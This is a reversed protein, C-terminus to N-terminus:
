SILRRRARSATGQVVSCNNARAIVIRSAAAEQWASHHSVILLQSEALRSSLFEVVTKRNAEDLAADVEDLMFTAQHAGGVQKQAVALAVCLCLGLVSRQGGSLSSLPISTTDSHASLVVKPRSASSDCITLSASFPMKFVQLGEQLAADAIELAKNFFLEFKSTQEAIGARLKAISTLLDAQRQKLADVNNDTASKIDPHAAAALQYAAVAAKRELLLDSLARVSWDSASGIAACQALADDEIETGDALAEAEEADMNAAEQVAGLKEVAEERLVESKRKQDMARQYSRMQDRFREEAAAHTEKAATVRDVAEAVEQNLEVLKERKAQADEFATKSAVWNSVADEAEQLERRARSLMRQARENSEGAKNAASLIASLEDANGSHRSAADAAKISAASARLKGELITVRHQLATHHEVVKQVASLSDNAEDCAKEAAALSLLSRVSEGEAQLRNLRKVVGGVYGGRRVGRMVVTGDSRVVSQVGASLMEQVQQNSVAPPAYVCLGFVKLLCEDKKDAAFSAFESSVEACRWLPICGPPVLMAAKSVTSPPLAVRPLAWVAAGLARSIEIAGEVSRSLWFSARGGMACAVAEQPVGPVRIHGGMPGLGYRVALRVQAGASSASSSLRNLNSSASSAAEQLSAVTGPSPVSCGSLERKLAELESKMSTEAQRLATLRLAANRATDIARRGAAADAAADTLAAMESSAAEADASARALASQASGLRQLCESQPGPCEARELLALERALQKLPDDGSVGAAELRATVRSLEKVAAQVDAADPPVPEEVQLEALEVCDLEKKAQLVKAILVARETAAAEDQARKLATRAAVGEANSKLARAVGVICKAITDLERQGRELRHVALAAASSVQTQGAAHAVAAGLEAPTSQCITAARTQSIDALADTVSISRSVLTEKLAALTRLRGNVHITRGGGGREVSAMIVLSATPSSFIATVKACAAKAQGCSYVLDDYSSVGLVNLPEGLAFRLASLVNSKGAGNLGAFVTSKPSMTFTQESLFSKYGEISLKSLYMASCVARLATHRFDISSSLSPSILLGARYM